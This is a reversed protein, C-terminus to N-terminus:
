IKLVKDLPEPTDEPTTQYISKIGYGLIKRFQEIEETHAYLNSGYSKRDEGVKKEAIRGYNGVNIVDIDKVEKLIRLADQPNAVILLIKLHEARPDNIIKISKEVTEIAVKINQPAAMMLSREIIKNTGAEDNAVIIRNIDLHRSWKIAIQGHILREDLRMQKIM